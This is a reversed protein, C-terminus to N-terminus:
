RPFTVEDFNRTVANSSDSTFLGTQLFASHTTPPMSINKSTSCGCRMITPRFSGSCSFVASPTPRPVTVLTTRALLFSTDDSSILRKIIAEAFPGM